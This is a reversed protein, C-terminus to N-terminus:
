PSSSSRSRSADRRRPTEPTPAARPSTSPSSASSSPTPRAGDESARFLKFIDYGRYNPGALEFDIFVAAGDHLLVNSPKFDGHGLVDYRSPRSLLRQLQSNREQGARRAVGDVAARMRRAERALAGADLAGAGAGGRDGLMADVGVWLARRRPCRVLAARAHLAALRPAIAAAALRSGDARVAPAALEAGPSFEQVLARRGHGRASERAWVLPARAVDVVGRCAPACRARALDSFLKVVLPQPRHEVDVRFVDNCFGSQLPTADYACGPAVGPTRRLLDGIAARSTTTATASLADAGVVLLALM